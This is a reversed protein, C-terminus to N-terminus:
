KNLSNFRNVCRELYNYDDSNLLNHHQHDCLISNDFLSNTNNFYYLNMTQKKENLNSITLYNKKDLFLEFKNEIIHTINDLCSVMWDFPYSEIKLNYDKLINSTICYNGLSIFITKNEIENKNENFTLDDIFNM